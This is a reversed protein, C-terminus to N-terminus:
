EDGHSLSELKYKLILQRGQRVQCPKAKSGRPQLTLIEDVRRAQFGTGVGSGSRLAWARSCAACTMSDANAVTEPSAGLSKETFEPASELMESVTAEKTGPGRAHGV